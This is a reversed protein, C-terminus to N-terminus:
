LTFEFSTQAIKYSNHWNGACPTFYWIKELVNTVTTRHKEIYKILNHSKLHYGKTTITLSTDQLVLDYVTLYIYSFKYQKWHLDLKYIQFVMCKRIEQPLSNWNNVIWQSFFHKRCDLHCIKQIPILDQLLKITVLCIMLLYEMWAM